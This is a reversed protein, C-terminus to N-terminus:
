YNRPQNREMSGSDVKCYYSPVPTELQIQFELFFIEGDFNFAKNIKFHHMFSFKPTSYSSVM